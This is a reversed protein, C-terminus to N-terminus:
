SGVRRCTDKLAPVPLTPLSSQYSYLRPKSIYTVTRIGAGWVRTTLSRKGHPDFMWGHYTLLGKLLYRQLYSLAVCGFLVECGLVVYLVYDGHLGVRRFPFLAFTM